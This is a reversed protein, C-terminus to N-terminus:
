TADPRRRLAAVGVPLPVSPDDVGHGETHVESRVRDGVGRGGVLVGGHHDVHQGVVVGPAPSDPCDTATVETDFPARPAAVSTM